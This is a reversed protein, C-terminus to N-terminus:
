FLEYKCIIIVEQYYLKRTFVNTSIEYETVVCTAIAVEIMILQTSGPFFNTMLEIEHMCVYIHLLGCSGM